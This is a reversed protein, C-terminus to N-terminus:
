LPSVFGKLAVTCYKSGIAYENVDLAYGVAKVTATVNNQFALAPILDSAVQVETDPEILINPISVEVPDYNRIKQATQQVILDLYKQTAQVSKLTPVSIRAEIPRGKSWKDIAYPDSAEVVINQSTAFAISFEPGNNKVYWERKSYPDGDSRGNPLMRIASYRPRAETSPTRKDDDHWIRITNNEGSGIEQFVIWHLKTIDIDDFKPRDIKVIPAPTEPIDSVNISFTAVVEGTPSGDNDTIIYGYIKAIAPNTANTGAGTKSMIFTMNRFKTPGPYCAFAIDKNYLSYFSVAKAQKGVIDVKESVAFVRNAYGDEPRTSDKFSFSTNERVYATYDGSDGDTPYDKIIHGSNDGFPYHFRLKKRQDIYSVAGSMRCILTVVQSATVLPNRIGPIFDRVIESIEELSFGKGFRQALTYDLLPIIDLDGFLSKVLNNAYFPVSQPNSIQAGEKLTEPPPVKQFDVITYNQIVGFGKAFAEYNLIGQRIRNPGVYDIIGYFIPQKTLSTKGLEIKMVTGNDFIDPDLENYVSDDILISGDWTQWQVQNVNIKQVVIDSSLPDYGNSQLLMNDETADWIEINYKWPLNYLSDYTVNFLQSM